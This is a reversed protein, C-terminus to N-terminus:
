ISFDFYKDKFPENELTFHWWEKPFNIFGNAEMIQKLLMRNEHAVSDIENNMTFSAEDFLDVSSGMDLSNDDLFFIFKGNILKRNTIIPSFVKKNLDILTLDVTSGRSHTSRTAIYGLKFADKKDIYPYFLHKNALTADKSWNIFDNVAHQPRYGDYILLSYNKENLQKQIEKLIKAAEKTVLIKNVNEYGAVVRGLFNVKSNYMIRLQITPDIDQISVFYERKFELEDEM